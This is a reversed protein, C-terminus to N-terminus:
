LLAVKSTSMSKQPPNGPPVGISRQIIVNGVVDAVHPEHEIGAAPHPPLGIVQREPRLVDDGVRDAVVVLEDAHLAVELARRREVMREVALVRGVQHPRYPLTKKNLDVRKM